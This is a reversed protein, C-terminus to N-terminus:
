KADDLDGLEEEEPEDEPIYPGLVGAKDFHKAEAAELEVTDGIEARGAEALWIAAHRVVYRNASKNKAM